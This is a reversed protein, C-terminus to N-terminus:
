SCSYIYIRVSYEYNIVCQPLIPPIKNMFGKWYTYGNWELYHETPHLDVGMAVPTPDLRAYELGSSDHFQWEVGVAGPIGICDNPNAYSWSTQIQAGLQCTGSTLIGYKALDISNFENSGIMVGSGSGQFVTDGPSWTNPSPICHGGSRTQMCIEGYDCIENISSKVGNQCIYETIGQGIDACKDTYTNGAYTVHGVIDRNDGGDSDVCDTPAVNLCVCHGAPLMLKNCIKGTPCTGGCTPYSNGCTIPTITQENYCCCTLLPAQNPYGYTVKSEGAQCTDFFTYYKTFGQASCVQSCSNYNPTQPNPTIALPQNPQQLNIVFNFWGKSGGYLILLFFAIGIGWYVYTKYKKKM